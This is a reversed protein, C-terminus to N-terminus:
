FERTEYLKLSLAASLALSGASLALLGILCAAAGAPSWVLSLAGALGEVTLTSEDIMGSGGLVIIPCLLVFLPVLPLYQTARTNGFRFFLPVEVAACLSGVAFFEIVPALVDLVNLIASGIVIAGVVIWVRLAAGFVAENRGAFMGQRPTRGEDRTM